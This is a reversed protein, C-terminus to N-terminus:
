NEVSLLVPGVLGAPMPKLLKYGALKPNIMANQPTNYVSIRIQNDGVKLASTIDVRFPESILTAIQQGNIEVQALDYVEGLDLYIKNGKALNERDLTFNRSYIGQGSFSALEPQELWNKLTFDAFNQNFSQRLAHGTVALQWGEAPLPLEAIKKSAKVVVPKAQTDLVMLASEGPALSLAVQSVGALQQTTVPAVSGDLANWRSFAGAEAISFSADKAQESLNVIFTLLQGQDKRQVFVLDTTDHASYSLNPAVNAARLSALLNNLPLTLAGATTAEAIATKVGADRAAADALQEDRSPLKDLFFVPLGAKAYEAVRQAVELSLANMPPLVLTQYSAGSAAILRGAEVKANLLADANIRDFDFGGGLLTKEVAQKGAGFDEIGVYYGMQGYFYAVPVVAEGARMALQLRAIYSALPKVAPWVPNTEALMTSFGAAFPSPQFAHWGPWDDAHFRYDLGHLILSNAGGAIILDARKRLQDPTIEYPKDKWVMSEASVLKRGYLHAGSRAFRMVYPDGEHVLDETEPIDAAGYGRIIDIAGGHAQFKAQLGQRHNAAVFPDIFGAFMLDSVTRRYDARVREALDSQSDFYPPSYHEGWAQMWGPQLVFPLYPTLDYGRKEKFLALFNESWPLDQMLELSDVFTARMGVPNNGLPEGVRAMHAAFASPDMHDIVLQPGQGSAGLVSTDAVYQKFVFVQWQGDPVQWDLTGDAQLRDTLVQYSDEALSGARLVNDWPFLKFGATAGASELEPATGRMAIVAVVKARADIRARWDAVKPDKVRPDFSSLDGFRRTRAPIKVKLPSTTSDVQTVAMTLELLAKEPTIAFGGGSPWASGLTYDLHMGLSQAKDAAAKVQAFFRPEAYDNVTAKESETLRVFSPQFSQIEAGSFGQQHLLEIERALEQEDGAAGPWWWRVMPRYEMPPAQFQQELASTAAPETKSSCGSLLMSCGLTSCGLIVLPAWCAGLRQKLSM